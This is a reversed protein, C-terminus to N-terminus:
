NRRLFYLEGAVLKLRKLGFEEGLELLEKCNLENICKIM